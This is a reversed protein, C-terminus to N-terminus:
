IAHAALVLYILLEAVQQAAGLCDGTYGGIRKIIYRGFLWRWILLAAIVWLVQKLSILFILPLMSVIAIRLGNPTLQTALSKVKSDAERTYSFNFLYSIALLRSWSHALLLAPIILAADHLTQLAMFKLALMLSLGLAGYTGLRSDKMIALIQDRDWGGGFGDCSDAWGDEHFAGTLVITAIMSLLIALNAPWLQLTVQYILVAAVGILLGVIPFYRAAANLNEASHEVTRPIPIRTLFGLAILFLTRQRRWDIM